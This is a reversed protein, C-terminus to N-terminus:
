ELTTSPAISAIDVLRSTGEIVMAGVLGVLCAAGPWRLIAPEAAPALLLITGDLDVGMM